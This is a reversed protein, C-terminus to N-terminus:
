FDVRVGWIVFIAFVIGLPPFIAFFIASVIAIFIGGAVSIKKRGKFNVSNSVNKQNQDEYFNELYEAYKNERSDQNLPGMVRDYFDQETLGFKIFFEEESLPKDLIKLLANISNKKADYFREEDKYEIAINFDQIADDYKELNHKALGRCYFYQPDKKLKIAKNLETIESKFDDKLYYLHSKDYYFGDIKNNLKIANNYDAMAADILDLHALAFGRYNFLYAQDVKSWDQWEGSEIVETLCIGAERYEESKFYELGQEYFTEVRSYSKKKIVKKDKVELKEGKQEFPKRKQSQLFTEKKEKQKSKKNNIKTNDKFKSLNEKKTKNQSKSKQNNDRNFSHIKLDLLEQLFKQSEGKLLSDRLLAINKRYLEGKEIIATEQNTSNLFADLHVSGDIKTLIQRAIEFGEIKMSLSYIEKDIKKKQLIKALFEQRNM